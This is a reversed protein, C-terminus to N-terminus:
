AHISISTKAEDAKEKSESTAWSVVRLLLKKVETRDGYFNPVNWLEAEDANLIHQYLNELKEELKKQQNESLKQSGLRIGEPLEAPKNGQGLHTLLKAKVLDRYLEIEWKESM